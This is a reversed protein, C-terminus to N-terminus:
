DGLRNKIREYAESIEELIINTSARLDEVSDEAQHQLKNLKVEAYQWKDELEEWEDKLESTALHAKLRLEDRQTKLREWLANLDKNM